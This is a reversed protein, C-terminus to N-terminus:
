PNRRAGVIVVGLRQKEEEIALSQGTDLSYGASIIVQRAACIVRLRAKTEDPWSVPHSFNRAFYRLEAALSNLHDIMELHDDPAPRDRETIGIWLLVVLSPTLAVAIGLTFAQWFLSM